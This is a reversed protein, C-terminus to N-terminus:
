IVPRRFLREAFEIRDQQEQRLPDSVRVPTVQPLSINVQPPSIQQNIGLIEDIDIDPVNENIINSTQEGVARLEGDIYRYGFQAAATRLTEFAKIISGKDTRSAFKIFGPSGLMTKAIQLGVITPIAALPAFVIGAAIGAAVLAGPFNGRGIEGKTLVDITDAFNKIDTTFEKGFMAELTEDSYKDLATNLNKVKFIDTVNGTKVNYDIADELLQGLSAERVAAFNEEGMLQRLKIINASNKPRFITEVIESPSRNPLESLNRNALLDAQEASAKAQQELANIFATGKATTNLGDQGRFVAILDDIDDAKLKPAIKQLQKITQIIIDGSGIGDTGRFLSDIKGPHRSEFKLINKAFVTYDLNNTVPDISEDFANAFLRQATQTKVRNLNTALEEKGSAILQQDYDDVAKFFDDLQRLSGNFILKDYVEDPDFAGTGRAANTLKKIVANDFPQNLTRNLKDAARLLDISENIKAIDDFSITEFLNKGKANELQIIERGKLGLITFISNANDPNNQLFDEGKLAHLDSDDLLRSLTYFLEREKSDKSQAIFLNLKRKTELVRTLKGFEQFGPFETEFVPLTENLKAFDAEAELVNKVNIDGIPDELTKLSKDTINFRKKFYRIADLGKNQHEKIVNDIAKAPANLPLGQRDYKAVSFFADDVKNYMKGVERNVVGKAEGLLELVQEGYERIGPADIYPEVGIFSDALDKVAENTLKTAQLTETQLNKKTQNITSSVTDATIDDVYANLTAGRGRLSATMNDFLEKLYPINSKERSSKLVAEAIQQTKGALNVDLGQLSIRYKDDLVKVKGEAVAKSIQADTAEKGLDADLKKIDLIDRGKAAQFALRKASTPAKAGFYMRYLGGGLAGLGEGVAGLTFETAALGALDQADQLQFGQIYDAAEETLKGTAGGVGSGLIRQATLNGKSLAKVSKFIRSQPLIGYVSGIVPGAVGMFDALDGREFPSTSDIITNIEVITGDDLTKTQVPQGRDRLGKPTLALQGDTTKVFGSAGVFNRLISEKEDLTEARSLLRRLQLDDVGTDYDFFLDDYVPSIAGKVIQARVIKRAADPSPAEVDQFVGPSIEVEYLPM